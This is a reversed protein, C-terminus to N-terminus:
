SLKFPFKTPRRNYKQVQNFRSTKYFNFFLKTKKMKITIAEIILSIFSLLWSWFLCKFLILIVNLSIAAPPSVQKKYYKETAKTFECNFLASEKINVTNVAESVIKKQYENFMHREFISNFIAAVRLRLQSSIRWGFAISTKHILFPESRDLLLHNKKDWGCFLSELIRTTQKFGVFVTRNRKMLLPIEIITQRNIYKMKSFLKIFVPENQGALASDARFYKMCRVQAKGHEIDNVLQHITKYYEEPYIKMLDSNVSSCIIMTILAALTLFSSIAIVSHYIRPRKIPKKNICNSFLTFLSIRKSNKRIRRFIPWNVLQYILFIIALFILYLDFSTSTFTQLVDLTVFTKQTIPLSIMTMQDEFSFPGHVVPNSSNIPMEPIFTYPLSVLSFDAEGSQLMAFLGTCTGNIYCTGFDDTELLTININLYNVIDNYFAAASGVFYDDQPNKRDRNILVLPFFEMMAIKANLIQAYM